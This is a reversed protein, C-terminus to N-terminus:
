RGNTIAIKGTASTSPLASRAARALVILTDDLPAAIKQGRFRELQSRLSDLKKGLKKHAKTGRKGPRQAGRVLKGCQKVKALLKKRVAPRVDTRAAGRLASTLAELYCTVGNFGSPLAHQWEGAICMDSTCADGDNCDVGACPAPPPLTTTTPSNPAFVNFGVADTAPLLEGTGAFAATLTGMGPDTPTLECTALGQANTTGSCHAAGLAFDISADAISAPPETSIDSLSASVGVPQGPAGARPSPNLTLFATHKGATWTVRARNSSLLSGNVTATAVISDGGSRPATYSLVAQGAPNTRVLQVRPNAGSVSFFLPTDAPVAVNHFSATFTQASGQAPDPSVSDPVLTLSPSTSKVNFSCGGTADTLKYVAPGLSSYLCGDPGFSGGGIDKALLTRTPPNTTIDVLELGESSLLILSRAEGSADAEAVNVWFFSNLGPLPTVTPPTPGNTGSVRAVGPTPSFYGTVVYLSGNPAFALYGNPTTSLTAYVEVTPAASAPNRVRYISADASVGSCGGDFFLDGSLPDAAVSFPCKLNSALTRLVAGTDPDLELIVGSDVSGTAARSAYLRGDQGVAQWLLTPGHTALRNASSAVGGGADLKFFDGNLGNAFFASGDRFVPPSAGNCGGFNISSYFLPGTVFGTAFPTVVYGNQGSPPTVSCATGTGDNFLVQASGPVPLEGDTVDVATYTVTENVLNTATFEIRGVADTVSPDPGNIISHGGAQSVRVLKGPTVRGLTDQLTVTITTSSVGNAAVTAPFAAIGGASAPPVGFMLQPEDQLVIGDSTDTATFRITAPALTTVRFVGQGNADTAVAGGPTIVANASDAALEVNRGSVTHGAADSLTVVIVGASTGDAPISLVPYGHVGGIVAGAYIGESVAADPIGADIGNLLRHLVDLNPSGLGVHAFDSGMSAADHLADTDALPYILPNLFGLNGGRAENLLAAFGAWTPAAVSTGGHLKGDPCGGGSGQCLIYGTAPDAHVAVDPLSRMRQENSVM